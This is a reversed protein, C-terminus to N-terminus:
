NTEKTAWRSFAKLTIFRYRRCGHGTRQYYYVYQSPKSTNGDAPYCRFELVDRTAGKDNAYIKNVKIESIKM